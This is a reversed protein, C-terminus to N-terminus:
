VLVTREHYIYHTATIFEWALRIEQWLTRKM